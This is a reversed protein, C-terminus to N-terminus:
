TGQRVARVRLAEDKGNYSVIGFTFDVTWANAPRRFQTTSSWYLDPGVGPFARTDISPRVRSEDNLSRIERIAPLRWDNHGALRLSKVYDAAQDWTLPDPAADRQWMLGTRLDTVTGDGNDRFPVPIPPVPHLTRVCRAHFRRDGGASLTERRPHAGAGGGANVTWAHRPSDARPESAWWYDAGTRPFLSTDLAPNVANYDVLTILEATAPLRWDHFGALALGRCYPAASEWTMEGGDSQQWQLGTQHDTVTGDGNATLSTTPRACLCAALLILSVPKM